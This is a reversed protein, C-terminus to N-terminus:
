EDPPLDDSSKIKRLEKDVDQNSKGLDEITDRGQERERKQKARIGRLQDLAGALTRVKTALYQGLHGSGSIAAVGGHVVLGGGVLVETAGAAAVPVTVPAGAGASLATGGAGVGLTAAGGSAMGGGITIEVGAMVLTVVDGAAQGSAFDANGTQRGIGFSFNSVVANGAGNAADRIDKGDPDVYRYPNGRAYAYRNWRQPDSPNEAFNMLPDVTTFRALRSGYYRAGFYDLGTEKDREKGTFHLPQTSNVGVNVTCVGTTCEEGYAYYDHQEMLDGAPSTVARVSGLTDVHYYVLTEAIARSPAGLALLACGLATTGSAARM